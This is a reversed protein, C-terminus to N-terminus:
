RRPTLILIRRSAFGWLPVSRCRGPCPCPSAGHGCDRTERDSPAVGGCSSQKNNSYLALGRVMVLVWGFFFLHQAECLVSWPSDRGRGEKKEEKEERKEERKRRKRKDRLKHKTHSLTRAPQHNCLLAHFYVTRQAPVPHTISTQLFSKPLHQSNLDLPFAQPVQLSRSHTAIACVPFKTIESLPM